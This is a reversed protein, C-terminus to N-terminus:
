HQSFRELLFVAKNFKEAWPKLFFLFFLFFRFFHLSFIRFKYWIPFYKVTLIQQLQHFFFQRLAYEYFLVFIDM